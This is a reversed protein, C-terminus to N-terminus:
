GAPAVVILGRREAAFKGGGVRERGVDHDEILAALPEGAREKLGGRGTTTELGVTGRDVEAEFAFELAARKEGGVRVLPGTARGPLAVVSRADHREVGG